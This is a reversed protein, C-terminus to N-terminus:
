PSVARFFRPPGAPSAPELWVWAGTPPTNTQVPTWSQFDTSAELVCPRGPYGQVSIQLGLTPLAVIDLQAALPQDALPLYLNDLFAADLGASYNADKVYRWELTTSGGSLAFQYYEWSTEGTWRKQLVGNLHFELGDWGSESSVRLRFAGGGATLNAQLLLSSSQNNSIPGSRAAFQGQYVDASQVSWQAPGFSVWPLPGTLNGSEFGETLGVARFSATLTYDRDMTLTLPNQLTDLTGQWGLFEFGRDPLATVVQVSGESYLGSPPTVAGGIDATLNLTHLTEVTVFTYELRAMGTAEGFGDIAIRCVQDRAVSVTLASHASGPFADDNEAVLTLNSVSDGTYLGLLTDFTSGQTTLDLTGPAPARFWYWVSHGGENGAHFPEGPERTAFETMATVTSTLSTLESADAFSDNVPDVYRLTFVVPLGVNGAVDEAFASIVNTGLALTLSGTWNSTGTAPVPANDNIQLTVQRLGTADPEPDWAIGTVTVRNTTFLAGGPPSLISVLPAAIDPAGGPRVTLLIDGVGSADYGAVAIRYTVGSKADFSVNAKLNNVVDNTSAAVFELTALSAGTYVALVPAFSSGATDMFVRTNASPSWTWWLSASVDPDEGHFPEAAEITALRNDGRVVGGAAAIKVANTFSDNNPRIVASYRVRTVNTVWAEPLLSGQENTVALDAGTTTYRVTFNTPAPFPPVVFTGAFTGDSALADPPNGDDLLPNSNTLVLLSSSLNTFAAANTVTLSVTTVSQTVMVTDAPPLVGVILTQPTGQSHAVLAAIWGVAACLIRLLRGPTRAKANM